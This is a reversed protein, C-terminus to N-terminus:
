EMGSLGKHFSFDLVIDYELLLKCDDKAGHNQPSTVEFSSRFSCSKLPYVHLHVQGELSSPYANNNTVQFHMGDVRVQSSGTYAFSGENATSYSLM